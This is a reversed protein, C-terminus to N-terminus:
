CGSPFSVASILAQFYLHPCVGRCLIIRMYHREIIIRYRFLVELENNECIEAVRTWNKSAVAETVQDAKSLPKSM